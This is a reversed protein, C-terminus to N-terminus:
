PARQERIVHADFARGHAPIVTRAGADLMRRWSDAIRECDDGFIPLGPTLRLPDRRRRSM